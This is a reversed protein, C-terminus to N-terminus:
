PLWSERVWHRWSKVSGSVRELSSAHNTVRERGREEFEGGEGGREREREKRKGEREEERGGERGGKRGGREERRRERGRWTSDLTCAACAPWWASTLKAIAM